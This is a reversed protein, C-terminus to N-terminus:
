YATSFSAVADFLPNGSLVPINAANTNVEIQPYLLREPFATPSTPALPLNLLNNTRRMDTWAEIQGIESVYKELLIEHLLAANASLSGSNMLGGAAFDAALYPAYTHGMSAYGASSGTYQNGTNYFARLTNLTALASNFDPSAQKLYSEALIMQNEAFTVLPFSTIGGFFGDMGVPTGWDFNCLYNLDYVDNNEIEPQVLWYYNFRATEDTKANNRNGPQGVKAPDILTPEYSNGGLYGSRDYVLFSYYLNFTQLYAAGHPALMDTTNDLTASGVGQGAQLMANAYDRVHLYYRAKLTHAVLLYNAASGGLFVDGDGSGTSGLNTIASDLKSQVATYVSTQTDFKAHINTPFQLAQSYPIDGWMDAALGLVMAEMVQTIGITVNNGSGALNSKIIKGDILVGDYVTVWEGNYDGSTTVYAALGQYQRQDGSFYDAFIGTERAMDAEYAGIVNVQLGTLYKSAAIVSPNTINVPDTSYGDTLSKCGNIFLSLFIVVVLLTLVKYNKM